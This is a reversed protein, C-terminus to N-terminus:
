PSPTRCSGSATVARGDPRAFSTCKGGAPAGGTGRGDIREKSSEPFAEHGFGAQAVHLAEVRAAQVAHGVPLPAVGALAVPAPRRGRGTAGPARSRCAPAPAARRSGRRRGRRRRGRAFRVPEGVRHAVLYWRRRRCPSAARGARHASRASPRCRSPRGSRCPRERRQALEGIARSTSLSTPGVISGAAIARM